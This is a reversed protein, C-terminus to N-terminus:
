VVCVFLVYLYKLLSWFPARIIDWLVHNEFNSVDNTSARRVFRDLYFTSFGWLFYFIIFLHRTGYTNTFPILKLWYTIPQSHCWVKRLCCMAYLKICVCHTFLHLYECFSHPLIFTSCYGINNGRSHTHGLYLPHQRDMCGLCVQPPDGARM